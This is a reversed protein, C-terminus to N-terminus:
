GHGSTLESALRRLEPKRVKGTATQPLSELFHVRSPVKFRAIRNALHSRLEEEGVASGPRRVVFAVGSEGWREDPVGVVASDLVGPHEALAAEVEAPYVNEGGSIIMDKTRDIVTSWGDEGVRLADGTRFWGGALARATEEARNWYGRFVNLGRVLLEGEGAAGGPEGHPDAIAVDTFFHPVGTSSPREFSGEVLAAYVGPSAETMGYGQLVAVGRAQWARAVRELVPSGGFIVYRLSSLEAGEFDPHECMVKLMTPVASFATVGLEGIAALMWGPDFKPSIVVTAGKLFAPLTVQGLGAAHFLPAASCVVDRELMDVHVLQNVSNFTLNEHTLVVGKSGGTTGSTYLILADQGLAVPRGPFPEDVLLSEYARAGAVLPAAGSSTEVLLKVGARRAGAHGVLEAQDPGFVLVKAGSDALLTNIEPAALRFNLPVFIAGLRGSAFLLEFTAIDSLGLYAVRDGPAVGEAALGSALQDVRRALEAYSLQREGLRLAIKDPRM